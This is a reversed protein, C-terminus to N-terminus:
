SDLDRATYAGIAKSHRRAANGDTLEIQVEDDGNWNRHLWISAGFDPADLKAVLGLPDSTARSASSGTDDGKYITGKYRRRGM